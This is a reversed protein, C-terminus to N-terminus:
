YSVPTTLSSELQLVICDSSRYETPEALLKGLHELGVDHRVQVSASKRLKITTRPLEGRRTIRLKMQRPPPPCM